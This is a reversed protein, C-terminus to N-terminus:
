PWSYGPPPPDCALRTKRRLRRKVDVLSRAAHRDTLEYPDRVYDYLEQRGNAYRVYLFRLSRWGCYAPRTVNTGNGGPSRAAAAELVFGRRRRNGLLDRGEVPGTSARAAAAITVPIDLNLAIRRDTAGAPVRKTWRIALPVRTASDYPVYKGVIRHEGWMDGNDSLVILLTNRLRSRARQAQIITHVARDVAQLSRYQNARHADISSRSVPPLSRIWSPKDSVDSENFDPRSFPALPSPLFADRPAPTSPGHPAYPAFYLFLPRDAPTSRLFRVAYRRLVDTSYDSPASGYSTLSGSTDLLQYDYYSGNSGVFSHWIDWGPPKASGGFENLYKGVLGTRYGAGRLWVAVTRQEMGAEQFTRWGANNSWVKTSHAFLGTLLSARSPCCVSTPVMGNSFRTGRRVVEHWVHPMWRLTGRREDDTLIVIIDPRSPRVGARAPVHGHTPLVLLVTALLAVVALQISRQASM